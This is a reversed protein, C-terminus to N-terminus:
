VRDRLRAFRGEGWAMVRGEFLLEARLRYFPSFSTLIWSRLKVNKDCPVPHVFRVHLDGTLAEIGAHFLCHTMAADLLSSIVGGHLIGDYGQLRGHLPVVTEVVGEGAPNFVLGLSLPNKQGCLICREHSVQAVAQNGKDRQEPHGSYAASDNV